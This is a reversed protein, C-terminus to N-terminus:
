FPLNELLDYEFLYDGMAKMMEEVNAEKSNEGAGSM